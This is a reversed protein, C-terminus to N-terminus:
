DRLPHILLYNRALSGIERAQNVTLHLGPCRVRREWTSELVALDAGKCSARLQSCPGTDGSFVIRLGGAVVSYGCSRVVRGCRNWPFSDRHRTRFASIRFQGANVEGKDLPDAISFRFHLGRIAYRLPRLAPSNKGGPILLLLPSTRGSVEMLNLLAQLGGAHDLHSHSIALIKLREYEDRSRGARSYLWSSVGDGCEILMEEGDCDLMMFTSVGPESFPVHLLVKGRKWQKGKMPVQVYPTGSIISSTLMMCSM